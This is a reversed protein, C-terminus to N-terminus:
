FKEAWLGPSLCMPASLESKSGLLYLTHFLLTINCIFNQVTWITWFLIASVQYGTRHLISQLFVECIQMRRYCNRIGRVTISVSSDIQYVLCKFDKLNKFSCLAASQSFLISTLRDDTISLLRSSTLLGLGSTNYMPVFANKETNRQQRQSPKLYIGVHCVSTYGWPLYHQHLVDGVSLLGTSPASPLLVLLDHFM